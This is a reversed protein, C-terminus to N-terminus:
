YSVLSILTMHLTQTVGHCTGMEQSLSDSKTAFVGTSTSYHFSDTVIGNNRGINGGEKQM